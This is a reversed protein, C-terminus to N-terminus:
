RSPEEPSPLERGVYAPGDLNLNGAFADDLRCLRGPPCGAWM